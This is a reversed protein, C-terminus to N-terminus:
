GGTTASGMYQDDQIFVTIEEPEDVVVDLTFYDPILIRSKGLIANLEDIDRHVGRELLALNPDKDQIFLLVSKLIMAATNECVQDSTKTIYDNYAPIAVASLIGIIVSVTILEVLTFGKKKM